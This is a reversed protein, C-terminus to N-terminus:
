HLICMIVLFLDMDRVIVACLGKVSYRLPRHTRNVAVMVEWWVEYVHEAVHVGVSHAANAGSRPCSAFPSHGTAKAPAADPGGKQPVANYHRAARPDVVGSVGVRERGLASCVFYPDSRECVVGGDYGACMFSVYFANCPL